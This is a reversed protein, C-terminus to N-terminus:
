PSQTRKRKRRDAPTSEAIVTRLVDLRTARYTAGDHLTAVYTIGDLKVTGVTAGHQLVTLAGATSVIETPTPATM